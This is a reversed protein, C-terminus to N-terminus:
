LPNDMAGTLYNFLSQFLEDQVPFCWARFQSRLDQRVAASIAAVMFTARQEQTIRTYWDWAPNTGALLGRVNNDRRWARVYRRFYEGGFQEAIRVHIGEWMWDGNRDDLVRTEAVWQALRNTAIRSNDDYHRQISAKTASSITPEALLVQGSWRSLLNADGEGYLGAGYTLEGYMIRDVLSESNHGLEHFIAPWWPDGDFGALFCGRSFGMPNGSYACTNPDEAISEWPVAPKNADWVNWTEAYTWGMVDKQALRGMDLVRGFDPFRSVANSIWDPPVFLRWEASKFVTRSGDQPYAVIFAQNETPMGRYTALCRFPEFAFSLPGGTFSVVGDRDVTLRNDPRQSWYGCIGFVVNSSSVVRGLADVVSVHATQSPSVWFADEVFRLPLKPEVAPADLWRVRYFANSGSPAPVAVTVSPTTAQLNSAGPVAQWLGLVSVASEVSYSANTAYTNTWWLSGSRDLRLIRIGEGHFPPRAPPAVEVVGYPVVGPGYGPGPLDPFDNWQAGWKSISGYYEMGGFGNPEGWTWNTYVVPDGSAWSFVGDRDADALGIWLNRAQDGYHGFTQWVWHDEDSDDVTALNGGLRIAEMQAVTWNTPVLLYYLHGNSVNTVPGMLVTANTASIISCFLALALGHLVIKMKM